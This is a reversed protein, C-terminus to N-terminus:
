STSGPQLHYMLKSIVGQLFLSIDKLICLGIAVTHYLIGNFLVCPNMFFSPFNPTVDSMKSM